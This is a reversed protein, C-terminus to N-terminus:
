SDVYIFVKQQGPDRVLRYVHYNGDFWDFRIGGVIQLTNQDYVAVYRDGTPQTLFALALTIGPTSSFGLRVQTDGLGFTTDQLVRVRFQIQSSLSPADPLPTANRYVTRTTGTTGYTLVGLFVSRTVNAPVDSVLTWPTPATTDDEPLTDATYTYCVEDQYNFTGIDPGCGDCFPALVDTVGTTKEYVQLSAYLVDEPTRVVTRVSANNLRFDGDSNLVDEPRNLGAVFENVVNLGRTSQDQTKPVLPTGENLLTFAVLNPEDRLFDPYAQPPQGTSRSKFDTHDHPITTLIHEPSAIVNRQNLVNYPPVLRMETPSRTLGYRVFDWTTQSLNTPDMAGWLISPLYGMVKRALGVTSSPLQEYGLRIVPDTDTDLILAINGGADRVLRYRHMATWDTEKPIRYAVVTAGLPFVSTITLTTGVVSAIEYVGRNP